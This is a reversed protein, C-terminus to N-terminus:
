KLFSEAENLFSQTAQEIEKESLKKPTVYSVIPYCNENKSNKAVYINIYLGQSLYSRIYALDNEKSVLVKFEKPVNKEDVEDLAKKISNEKNDLNYKIVISENEAEKRKVITFTDVKNVRIQYGNEQFKQKNIYNPLDEPGAFAVVGLILFLFLIIKKM